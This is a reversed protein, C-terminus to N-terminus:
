RQPRMIRIEAEFVERAPVDIGNTRRATRGGIELRTEVTFRGPELADIEFRGDHAVAGRRLLGDASIAQVVAWEPVGGPPDGLVPPPGYGATTSGEPFAQLFALTGRLTTGGLPRLEVARSEDDVVTVPQELDLVAFGGARREWAVSLTGPPLGDLAFSGDPGTTTRRELVPGDATPEPGGIVIVGTPQARPKWVGVVITEDPRGVGDPDRLHGEIRARGTTATVPVLVPPERVIVPVPPDAEPAAQLVLVLDDRSPLGVREHLLECGRANVSVVIPRAPLHDFRFRGDVDTYSWFNPVTEVGDNDDDHAYVLAFCAPTGDPRHVVGALHGSEALVLEVEAPAPVPQRLQARGRRWALVHAGRTPVGALVFRGASDTWTQLPEDLEDDDLAVWAFPVPVGDALVRGTVTAGRRLVLVLDEARRAPLDTFWSEVPVTGPVRARLTLATTRADIGGLEYRGDGDTTASPWGRMSRESGAGFSQHEVLVRAGAVPAGSEDVVRGHVREEPALALDRVLETAPAVEGGDVRAPAFGDRWAFIERVRGASCRLVYAGDADTVVHRESGLGQAIRVGALPVGRADRVTGRVVAELPEAFVLWSSPAPDGAVFWSSVPWSRHEASDVRVEVRFLGGAPPEVTWAFRGEADAAFRAEAYPTGAGEPDAFARGVLPAGAFVVDASRLVHGRVTWAADLVERGGSGGGAEVSTPPPSSAAPAAGGGQPEAVTVAAVGEASTEQRNSHVLWGAAVLATLPTALWALRHDM